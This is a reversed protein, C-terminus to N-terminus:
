QLGPADGMDEDAVQGQGTSPAGQQQQQQQQPAAATGASPRLPFQLPHAPGSFVDPIVAQFEPGIRPKRPQAVGLIKSTTLKVQKAAQAEETEVTDPAVAHPPTAPAQELQVAELAAASRKQALKLRQKPPLSSEASPSPPGPASM